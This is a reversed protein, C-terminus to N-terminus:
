EGEQVGERIKLMINRNKAIKTWDNNKFDTELEFYLDKVEKIMRAALERNGNQQELAAKDELLRAQSILVHPYDVSDPYKEAFYRYVTLALDYLSKAEYEANATFSSPLLKKVADMTVGDLKYTGKKQYYAAEEIVVGVNYLSMEALYSRPNATVAHVLDDLMSLWARSKDAAPSTEEQKQTTVLTDQRTIYFRTIFARQAAIGGPSEKIIKEIYQLLDEKYKKNRASDYEDQWKQYKEQLLEAKETAAKATQESVVSWVLFVVLGVIAIISLTFVLMRNRQIFQALKDGFGAKREAGQAKNM